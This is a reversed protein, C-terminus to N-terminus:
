DNSFDQLLEGARTRARTEEVRRAPDAETELITKLLERAKSAREPRHDLLAEALYLPNLLHDPFRRRAEELERIARERDVWGTFFPIKPAEAHLRGLVRYGGGHEYTEDLAIVTEAYRRIRDGVGQRAAALKGSAEGWVGWVVAGWFYLPAAEARDGLLRAREEPEASAMRERGGVEVALQTLGEEAIETARDLIAERRDPDRTAYEAQFWLARALRWAVAPSEPRRDWAQEYVAIAEAIPEPDAWGDESDRDRIEWLADGRELIEEM